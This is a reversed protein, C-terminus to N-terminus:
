RARSITERPAPRTSVPPLRALILAADSVVIEGIARFAEMMGGARHASLLMDDLRRVPHDPAVPEEPFVDTAARFRGAAVLEVFADFDVVAARSMLLFVSDPRILQLERRGLFGQNERTVGAFVFIVRSMSLVDDLGAPVCDHARILRE